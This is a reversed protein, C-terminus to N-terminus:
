RVNEPSQFAMTTMTKSQSFSTLDSLNFASSLIAIHLLSHVCAFEFIFACAYNLFGVYVVVLIWHQGSLAM